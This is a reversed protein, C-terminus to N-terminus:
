MHYQRVASLMVTAAMLMLTLMLLLPTRLLERSVPDDVGRGHARPVSTPVRLM